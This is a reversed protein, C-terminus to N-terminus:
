GNTEHRLPFLNLECGPLEEITATEGPGLFRVPRNPSIVEVTETQFDVWVQVVGNVHYLRQKREVDSAKDGPSCVEFAVDPPFPAPGTLRGAWLRERRVVAADPCPCEGSAMTFAVDADVCIWERSDLAGLASSIRHITQGHEFGTPSMFRVEGDIYEWRQGPKGADLFDEWTLAAKTTAM